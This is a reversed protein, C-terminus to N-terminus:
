GQAEEFEGWSSDRVEPEPLKKQGREAPHVWERWGNERTWTMLPATDSPIILRAELKPNNSLELLSQAHYELDGDEFQDIDFSTVRRWSGSDKVDLNIIRTM